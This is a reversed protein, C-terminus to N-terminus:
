YYKYEVNVIFAQLLDMLLCVSTTHKQEYTCHVDYVSQKCNCAESELWGRSHLANYIEYIYTYTHLPLLFCVQIAWTQDFVIITRNTLNKKCFLNVYV